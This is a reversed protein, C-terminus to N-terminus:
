NPHIASDIRTKVSDFAKDRVRKGYKPLQTKLGEISQHPYDYVVECRRLPNAKKDDCEARNVWILIILLMM